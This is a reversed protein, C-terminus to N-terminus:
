AEPAQEPVPVFTQFLAEWAAQSLQPARGEQPKHYLKIHQAMASDSFKNTNSNRACSIGDATCKKCGQIPCMRM